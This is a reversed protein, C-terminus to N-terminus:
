KGANIEILFSCLSKRKEADNVVDPQTAQARYIAVESSRNKANADLYWM